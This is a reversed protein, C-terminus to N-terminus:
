QEKWIQFVRTLIENKKKLMKEKSSCKVMGAGAGKHGDGINLLRMIEGVDKNHNDNGLNLSLSMSISLDNTKIDRRYLNKIEIVGLSKPFLLYALNKIIFPRRNHKTLDIIILENQKDEDLSFSDQKIQNIITHEEELFLTYRRQVEPLISVDEISKERLWSVLNNMYNQRNIRKNDRIKLTGEIIKGSTEKRWDAIKKYNFSDILDAEEVMKEFRVPLDKQERFYEYVVRSCSPKLEFRGEIHEIDIKRYKLDELNGEHHDFWLGYEPPCPLDCVIDRDTVSIRAEGISRPSTFMYYRIKYVFACIAASVIGDFDDHTVIREFM